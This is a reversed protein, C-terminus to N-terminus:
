VICMQARFLQWSSVLSRPMQESQEALAALILHNAKARCVRGAVNVCPQFHASPLRRQVEDDPNRFISPLTLGVHRQSAIVRKVAVSAAKILRGGRVIPMSSSYITISGSVLASVGDTRAM